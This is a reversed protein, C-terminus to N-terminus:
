LVYVMGEDRNFAKEIHPNTQVGHPQKRKRSTRREIHELSPPAKRAGELFPNDESPDLEPVKDRSDTFIQVKEETEHEDEETSSYLTFGVRKRVKRNKRPTPMADDVKDPRSPFLVRAAADVERRPVQKKRPLSAPTPLLHSVQAGSPKGNARLDTQSLRQDGYNVGHM